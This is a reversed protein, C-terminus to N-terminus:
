VVFERMDLGPPRFAPSRLFRSLTDMITMAIAAPSM